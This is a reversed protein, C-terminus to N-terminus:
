RGAVAPPLSRPNPAAPANSWLAAILVVIVAGVLLTAILVGWRRLFSREREGAHQEPGASGVAPLVVLGRPRDAGSLDPDGV